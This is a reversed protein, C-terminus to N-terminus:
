RPSRRNTDGGTRNPDIDQKRSRVEPTSDTTGGSTDYGTSRAGETAPTSTHIQETNDRHEEQVRGEHSTNDCSVFFFAGLSLSFILAKM